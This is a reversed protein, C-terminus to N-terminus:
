AVPAADPAESPEYLVTAPLTIAGGRYPVNDADHVSLWRGDKDKLLADPDSDLIMSGVALTDLEETTTITRPKRYGAALIADALVDGGLLAPGDIARIFDMLEDRESM